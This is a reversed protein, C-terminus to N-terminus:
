VGSGGGVALGGSGDRVATAGDGASRGVSRDVPREHARTV